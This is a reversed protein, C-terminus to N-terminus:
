KSPNTSTSQFLFKVGRRKSRYLLTTEDTSGFAGSGRTTQYLEIEEHVDSMLIQKIEGRYDADIVGKLIWTRLEHMSPPKFGRGYEATGEVLSLWYPDNVVNFPFAASYIFRGVRRKVDVLLDKKYASNLTTQRPESSVFRTGKGKSEDSGSCGISNGGVSGVKSSQTSM